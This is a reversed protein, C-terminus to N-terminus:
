GGTHATPNLEWLSWSLMDRLAQMDPSTSSDTWVKLNLQELSQVARRDGLNGLGKVAETQIRPDGSELLTMFQTFLIPTKNQAAITGLGQIAALQQDPDTSSHLFSVLVPIGAEGQQGLALLATSALTPHSLAEELTTLAQDSPLGGLLHLITRQREIQDSSERYIALLRDTQEWEAALYLPFDDHQLQANLENLAFAGSDTAGTAKAAERTGEFSTRVEWSWNPSQHNFRYTLHCAPGKWLRTTPAPGTRRHQSPGTWTQREEYKIRVVADHPQDTQPVVTWGAKHLRKTVTQILPEPNQLGRETLAIGEILVTQAQALPHTPQREQASHQGFVPSSYGMGCIILTLLGFFVILNKDCVSM